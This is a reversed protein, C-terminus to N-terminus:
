TEASRWEVDHSKADGAFEVELKLDCVAQGERQSVEETSPDREKRTKEQPDLNSGKRENTAYQTKEIPHGSRQARLSTMADGTGGTSLSAAGAEGVGMSDEAEIFILSGESGAAAVGVSGIAVGLASGTLTSFEFEGAGDRSSDASASVGPGSPAPSLPLPVLVVAPRFRLNFLMDARPTALRVGSWNAFFRLLSRSAWRAILSRVLNWM